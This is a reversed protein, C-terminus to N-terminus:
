HLSVDRKKAAALFAIEVYYHRTNAVILVCFDKERSFLGDMHISATVDLSSDPDRERNVGRM